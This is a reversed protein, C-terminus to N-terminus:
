HGPNSLFSLSRLVLLWAQTGSQVCTVLVGQERRAM